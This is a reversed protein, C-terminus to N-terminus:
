RASLPRHFHSYGTFLHYTAQQHDPIRGVVSRLVTVKDAIKATRPFNESFTEGTKTKMVGFGGRIEMPAEPKPDFSEQQPMGGGLHIQIVSHAKAMLKKGKDMNLSQGEKAHAQLRFLDGMSLGLAGFVGAQIAQRRTMSRYGACGLQNADDHLTQDNKM